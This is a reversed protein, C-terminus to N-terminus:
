TKVGRAWGSGKAYSVALVVIMLMAGTFFPWDKGGFAFLYGAGVPGVARALTSVSRGLGLVGGRVDEAANLSIQSALAPSVVSFGYTTIVLAIIMLALGDSFPLLALGVALAIFGQRILRLEGFRRSLRGVLGGQIIASILGLFAFMYGNQLVGWGFKRETWMAFTAELGAFVFVSMFTLVFMMQIGPVSTAQRFAQRREQGSQGAIRLRAEPSLSEKLAILTMVLAAAAFGAAAFAPLQFNTTAPDAGALIGGIAPGAIFGLGFAAGILGMGRTRNEENTIDAMYAFAASISGAMFGALARAGFIQILDTASALWLYAVVTGVLSLILTPRRGFRDSFRGWLPATIFQAMSYVAMVLTVQDPSAKFFEAYFPLLPIVIGFGVLNIFVIVFLIIM